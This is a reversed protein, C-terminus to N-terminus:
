RPGRACEKLAAILEEDGLLPGLAPQAAMTDPVAELNAQDLATNWDGSGGTTGAGLARRVVGDTPWGFGPNERLLRRYESITPSKGQLLRAAHHLAAISRARKKSIDGARTDHAVLHVRLERLVEHQAAEDLATIGACVPVAAPDKFLGRRPREDQLDEATIDM